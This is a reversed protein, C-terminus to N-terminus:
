FVPDIYLESKSVPAKVSYKQTVSRVLNTFWDESKPSIHINKILKNLDIDINMGARSSGTIFTEPTSETPDEKIIARVEKEHEFSKRKFMFPHFFNDLPIVDKNYDIYNVFGLLSENPLCSALSSYTTEIAISENTKAYLDWMAASEFENAHWCSIFIWRRMREALEFHQKIADEKKDDTLFQYYRYLFERNHIPFSGEYRDQFRDSRCFFLQGTSILSVFKTFDMYRWLKISTDSPQTFCPHTLNANM